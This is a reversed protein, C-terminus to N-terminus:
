RTVEHASEAMGLAVAADVPQYDDAYRARVAVDRLIRRLAHTSLTVYGEATPTATATEPIHYTTTM